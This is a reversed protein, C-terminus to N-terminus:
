VTKGSPTGRFAEQRMSPKFETTEIQIQLGVTEAQRQTQIIVPAHHLQLLLKMSERHDVVLDESGADKETAQSRGPNAFM